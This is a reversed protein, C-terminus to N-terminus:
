ISKGSKVREMYDKVLARKMYRAKYADTLNGNDDQNPAKDYKRTETVLNKLRIAREGKGTTGSLRSYVSAMAGGVKNKIKNM